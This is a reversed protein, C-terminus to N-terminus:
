FYSHEKHSRTARSILKISGEQTNVFLHHGYWPLYQALSDSSEEKNLYNSQM